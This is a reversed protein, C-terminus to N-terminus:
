PLLNYVSTAQGKFRQFKIRQLKPQFVTIFGVMARMSAALYRAARQPHSSIM